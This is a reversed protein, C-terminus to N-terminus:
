MLCPMTLYCCFPSVKRFIEACKQISVDSFLSVHGFTFSSLGMLDAYDFRNTMSWAVKGIKYGLQKCEKPLTMTNVLIFSLCMFGVLSYKCLGAEM